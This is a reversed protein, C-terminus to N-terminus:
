ATSAVTRGIFGVVCMEGGCRPDVEYVLRLLDAWRKRLAAQCPDDPYYRM